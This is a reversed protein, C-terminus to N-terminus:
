LVPGLSWPVFEDHGLRESSPAEGSAVRLLLEFIEGGVQELSAEGDLIRGANVDTDDPMLRSANSNSCIKIVPVTPFGTANGRGTTYAIVNAGGAALGALSTPDNGPTNMFVFGPSRVREAYEFADMLPTTGAKVIAGLSKELITTIGGEKNGPAPNDNFSADFRRLYNKYGEVFGLYKEAVQRSRSRRVLLHEAGFTETTEGLVATGGAEVLRDSCYGLAPNATIGSFTDSGGCQLGLVIRSVPTEVRRDAAAREIMKRVERCAAQVAPRTGGLDQLTLGVLRETRTSGPPLYRSILNV